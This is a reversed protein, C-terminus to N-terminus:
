IETYTTLLALIYHPCASIFMWYGLSFLHNLLHTTNHVFQLLFLLFFLFLSLSLFFFPQRIERFEWGGKRGAQEVNCIGCADRDLWGIHAWQLSRDDLNPGSVFSLSWYIMSCFLFEFVEYRARKEKRKQNGLAKQKKKKTKHLADQLPRQCALLAWACLCNIRM